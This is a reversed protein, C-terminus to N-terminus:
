VLKPRFLYSCLHAKILELTSWLISTIIYWKVVLVGNFLKNADSVIMVTILSLYAM